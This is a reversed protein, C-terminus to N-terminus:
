KVVDILNVKLGAKVICWVVALFGLVMAGVVAKGVWESVTQFRAMIRNNARLAEIGASYDGHGVDKVMGILHPMERKADESLGCGCASLMPSLEEAVAKALRRVHDETM